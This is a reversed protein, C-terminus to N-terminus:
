QNQKVSKALELLGQYYEDLSTAAGNLKDLAQKTQAKVKSFSELDNQQTSYIVEVLDKFNVNIASEFKAGFIVNFFKDQAFPENYLVDYM